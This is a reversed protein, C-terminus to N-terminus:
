DPSKSEYKKSLLINTRLERWKWYSWSMKHEWTFSIQVMRVSLNFTAQFNM